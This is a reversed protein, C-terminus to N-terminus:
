DCGCSFLLSLHCVYVAEKVKRCAEQVKQWVQQEEAKGVMISQIGEPVMFQFLDREGRLQKLGQHKKKKKIVALSFLVASSRLKIWVWM